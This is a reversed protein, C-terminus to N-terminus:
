QSMHFYKPIFIFIVQVELLLICTSTEEQELLIEHINHEQLQSRNTQALIMIVQQEVNVIAVTTIQHLYQCSSFQINFNYLEEYNSRIMYNNHDLRPFGSKNNNKKKFEIHNPFVQAAAVILAACQPCM